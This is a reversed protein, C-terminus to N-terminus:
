PHVWRCLLLRMIIVRIFLVTFSVFVAFVSYQNSYICAVIASRSRYHVFARLRRAGATSFPGLRRARGNLFGGNSACRGEGGSACSYNGCTSMLKRVTM